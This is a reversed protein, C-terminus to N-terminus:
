VLTDWRNRNNASNYWDWTYPASIGNGFYGTESVDERSSFGQTFHYALTCGDKEGGLKGDGLMFIPTWDKEWGTVKVDATLTIGDNFDFSSLDAIKAYTKGYTKETALNLVGDSVKAEGALELGEANDFTYKVVPQTSINSFDTGPEGDEIPVNSEPPVQKYLETVDTESLARDYVYVEDMLGKFSNNWWNIGLYIPMNEYTGSEYDTIEQSSLIEANYYLVAKGSDDFTLTIHTWTNLPLDKLTSLSNNNKDLWTWVTKYDVIGGSAFDNYYTGATVYNDADVNTFFIPQFNIKEATNVWASITFSKGTKVDLELGNNGDADTAGGNFKFAQDKRGTEYVPEDIIEATWTTGSGGHLKAKGGGEVKNDLSGDFDYYGVLGSTIDAVAADSVARSSETLDLYGGGTQSGISLEEADAEMCPIAPAATLVMSAALIKALFKRNMFVYRRKKGQSCPAIRM